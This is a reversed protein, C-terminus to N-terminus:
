AAAPVWLDIRDRFRAGSVAGLGRAAGHASEAQGATATITVLVRDGDVQAGRSAAIEHLRNQQHAEVLRQVQSDMRRAWAPGRDADTQGGPTFGPGPRAGPSEGQAMGRPVTNCLAAVVIILLLLRCRLRYHQYM